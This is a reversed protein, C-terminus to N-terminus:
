RVGAKIRAALKDYDLYQKAWDMVKDIHKLRKQITLLRKNKAAIQDMLADIETYWADLMIWQAATATAMIFADTTEINWSTKVAAFNKALIDRRTAVISRRLSDREAELDYVQEALEEAESALYTATGGAVVFRDAVTVPNAPATGDEEYTPNIPIYAHEWFQERDNPESDMNNM